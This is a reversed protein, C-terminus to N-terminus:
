LYGIVSGEDIVDILRDGVRYKDVRSSYVIQQGPRVDLSRRKGKHIVGEGIAVVKGVLSERQDAQPLYLISNPLVTQREVALWKNLPKV